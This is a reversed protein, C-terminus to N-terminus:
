RGKFFLKDNCFCKEHNLQNFDFDEKRPKMVWCVHGDIKTEDILQFGQSLLENKYNEDVVYILRM